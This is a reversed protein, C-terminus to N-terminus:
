AFMKSVEFQFDEIVPKASIIENGKYAKSEDPSVYVYIKQQKPVIYWVLQGGANFYDQVKEIVDEFSESNSLIEITFRSKIRIGRRMQQLEDATFYALDPVRKRTANVYSDMEAMLEDGKQYCTTSTFARQLFTAIFAEDQKMADKPIIKGDIFEFSGEKVYQNQWIDFDEVTQIDTPLLDKQVLTTVM